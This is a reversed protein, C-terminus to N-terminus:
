WSVSIGRKNCFRNPFFPKRADGRTLHMPNFGKEHIAGSCFHLFAQTDANQIMAQRSKFAFIVGTEFPRGL